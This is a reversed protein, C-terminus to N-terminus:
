QMRTTVVLQQLRRVFAIVQEMMVLEIVIAAEDPADNERMVKTVEEFATIMNEPTTQEIVVNM